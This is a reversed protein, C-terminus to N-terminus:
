EFLYIKSSTSLQWYIPAIRNSSKEVARQRKLKILYKFGGGQGLFTMNM